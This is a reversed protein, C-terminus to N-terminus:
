KREKVSILRWSDSRDMTLPKLRRGGWNTSENKLAFLVCCERFKGSTAESEEVLWILLMMRSVKERGEPTLRDIYM